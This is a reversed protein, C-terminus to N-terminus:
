FSRPSLNSLATVIKNDTSVGHIYLFMIATQVAAYHENSSSDISPLARSVQGISAYYRSVGLDSIQPQSTTSSLCAAGCAIAVNWLGDFLFVKHFIERVMTAEFGPHASSLLLKPIKELFYNFCVLELDSAIPASKFLWSPGCSIDTVFSLDLRGTRQDLSRSSRHAAESSTRFESHGDRRPRPGRQNRRDHLDVESPWVCVTGTKNCRSCWPRKEDCKKRITRGVPHEACVSRLLTM